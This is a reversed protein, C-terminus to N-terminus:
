NVCNHSARFRLDQNKLFNQNNANNNESATEFRIVCTWHKSENVLFPNGQDDTLTLSFSQINKGSLNHTFPQNLGSAGWHLYSYTSTTTEIKQLVNDSQALITGDQQKVISQFDNSVLSCKMLVYMYNEFGINNGNKSDGVGNTKWILANGGLASWTAEPTSLIYVIGDAALTILRPAAGPIDRFDFAAEPSFQRTFVQSVNFGLRHVISNTFNSDSYLVFRRTQTGTSSATIQVKNSALLTFVPTMTNFPSEAAKANLTNVIEQITFLGTDLTYTKREILPNVGPLTYLMCSFTNRGGGARINFFDNSTSFSMLQMSTAKEIPQNLNIELTPNYPRTATTQDAAESNIM